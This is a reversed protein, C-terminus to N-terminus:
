RHSKFKFVLENPKGVDLQQRVIRELYDKDHKMRYIEHAMKHNETELATIKTQMLDKTQVLHRYALWGKNGFITVWGVLGIVLLLIITIIKFGSPKMEM